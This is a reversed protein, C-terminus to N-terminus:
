MRRAGAAVSDLLSYNFAKDVTRRPAAAPAHAKMANTIVEPDLGLVRNAITVFFWRWKQPPGSKPVEIARLVKLIAETSALALLPALMSVPPGKPTPMEVGREVCWSCFYESVIEAERHLEVPISRQDLAQNLFAISVDGSFDSRIQDSRHADATLQQNQMPLPRTELGYHGPKEDMTAQSGPWRPRNEVPIAQNGPWQHGPKEDVQPRTQRGDIAQNSTWQRRKEVPPAIAFLSRQSEFWDAPLTWRSTVGASGEVGLLQSLSRAAFRIADRSLNLEAALDRASYEIENTGETICRSVLRLLVPLACKPLRNQVGDLYLFLEDYRM